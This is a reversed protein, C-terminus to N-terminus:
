IRSSRVSPRAQRKRLEDTESNRKESSRQDSTENLETGCMAAGSIIVYLHCRVDFAASEIECRPCSATDICRSRLM